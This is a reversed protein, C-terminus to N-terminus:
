EVGRDKKRNKSWPTIVNNKLCNCEKKKPMGFMVGFKVGVYWSHLNSAGSYGKFLGGAKLADFEPQSIGIPLISYYSNIGNVLNMVQYVDDFGNLDGYSLLNGEKNNSYASLAGFEGCLAFKLRVVGGSRMKVDLGQWGIEFSPALKLRGVFGYERAKVDDKTVSESILIPLYKQYYITCDEFRFDSEIDAYLGYGVSVGAGFYFGSAFKYGAMLPLNVYLVRQREKWTVISYSLDSVDGESDVVADIHYIDQTNQLRGTLIQAEAGIGIWAGNVHQWEYGVGFSGGVNPMTTVGMTDPLPLLNFGSAGGSFSMTVFHNDGHLTKPDGKQAEVIGVFLVLFFVSLFSRRLFLSKM